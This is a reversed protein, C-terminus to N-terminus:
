IEEVLMSEIATMGANSSGAFAHLFAEFSAVRLVLHWHMMRTYIYLIFFFSYFRIFLYIIYLTYMNTYYIDRDTCGEGRSKM